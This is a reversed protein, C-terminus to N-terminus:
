PPPVCQECSRVGVGPWVGRDLRLDFGPVEEATIQQPVMHDGCM